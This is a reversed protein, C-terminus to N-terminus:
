FLVRTKTGRAFCGFYFIKTLSLRKDFAMRECGLILSKKYLRLLQLNVRLFQKSGTM